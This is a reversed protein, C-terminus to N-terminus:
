PTKTWALWADGEVNLASQAYVLHQIVSLIPVTESSEGKVLWFGLNPVPSNPISNLRAYGILEGPLAAANSFAYTTDDHTYRRLDAGPLWDSILRAGESIPSSQSLALQGAAARAGIMARTHAHTLQGIQILGAVLVLVVVLSIMFEVM